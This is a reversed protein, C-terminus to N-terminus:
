LHLVKFLFIGGPVMTFLFSLSLHSVNKSGRYIYFSQQRAQHGCARVEGQPNLHDRPPPRFSSARQILAQCFPGQFPDPESGTSSRGAPLLGEASLHNYTSFQSFYCDIVPTHFIATRLQRDCDIVISQISTIWQQQSNNKVSRRSVDMFESAHTKPATRLIRRQYWQYLDVGFTDCFIYGIESTGFIYWVQRVM